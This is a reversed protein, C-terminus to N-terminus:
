GASVNVIEIDYPVVGQEKISYHGTYEFAFQGKAKDTSKLQFGGTNLANKVTIHIYSGDTAGYDGVWHLDAFDADVLDNRPIVKNGDVDAAAILSKCLDTDVTVFTGSLSVAIEKLKKLEKTNTPCNDIDSGWDEYTPSAKFSVGGTTAGLM